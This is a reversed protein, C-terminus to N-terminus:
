DNTPEKADPTYPNHKGAHEKGLLPLPAGNPTSMQSQRGNWWGSEHGEAWAVALKGNLWEEAREPDDALGQTVAAEYGENLLEARTEMDVCTSTVRVPAMIEDMRAQSDRLVDMAYKRVLWFVLVPWALCWVIMRAGNRAMPKDAPVVPEVRSLAWMVVGAVFVFLTVIFYAIVLGTM